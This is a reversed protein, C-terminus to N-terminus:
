PSTPEDCKEKPEPKPAQAPTAPGTGKYRGTIRAVLDATAAKQHDPIAFYPRACRRCYHRTSRVITTRGRDDSLPVRALVLCCAEPGGCGDCRAHRLAAQLQEFESPERPASESAGAPPTPSTGGSAAVERAVDLRVAMYHEFTEANLLRAILDSRRRQWEFDLLMGVLDGHAMRRFDLDDL